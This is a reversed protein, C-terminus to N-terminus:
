LSDLTPMRILTLSSCALTSSPSNKRSLREIVEGIADDGNGNFYVAQVNWPEIAAYPRNGAHNGCAVVECALTDLVNM